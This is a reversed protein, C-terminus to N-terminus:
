TYKEFIVERREMGIVGEKSSCRKSYKLLKMIYRESEIEGILDTEMNNVSLDKLARNLSNFWETFGCKRFYM